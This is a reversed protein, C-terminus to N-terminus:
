NEAAKEENDAKKTAKQFQAIEAHTASHLAAVSQFRELFLQPTLNAARALKQLFISDQLDAPKLSIMYSQAVQYSLSSTDVERIQTSYNPIDVVEQLPIPLVSGGKIAIM